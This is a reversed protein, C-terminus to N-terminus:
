RSLQPLSHVATLLCYLLLSHILQEGTSFFMDESMWLEQSSVERGLAGGHADRILKLVEAKKLDFGLARLAVKTEHYTLRKDKDMDFLQFAEKIELSQDESLAPAGSSYGSSRAKMKKSASSNPGYSSM